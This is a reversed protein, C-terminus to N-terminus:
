MTEKLNVRLADLGRSVRKRVVAESCRMEGAIDAYSCDELVRLSVAVRQEDTLGALAALAPQGGASKSVLEDIRRLDDDHLELREMQLRRRASDRVQGRRRADILKHTAIAYLWSAPSAKRPRYRQAGVLAAAFTEAMLDAAAEPEGVRARFFALIGNVHRRYFVAFAHADKPTAVLLEVDSRRESDRSRAM